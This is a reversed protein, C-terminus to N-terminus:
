ALLQSLIWCCKGCSRGWWGVGRHYTGRGGLEKLIMRVNQVFGAPYIDLSWGHTQSGRSNTNPGEPAPVRRIEVAAPGPHPRAYSQSM